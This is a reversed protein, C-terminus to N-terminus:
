NALASPYLKKIRGEGQAPYSQHSLRALCHKLWYRSYFFILCVRGLSSSGLFVIYM